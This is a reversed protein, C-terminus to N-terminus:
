RGPIADLMRGFNAGGGGGMGLRLITGDSLLVTRREWDIADVTKGESPGYDIVDGVEYSYGDRFTVRGPELMSLAATRRLQAELEARALELQDREVRLLALEATLEEVTALLLADGGPVVPGALPPM